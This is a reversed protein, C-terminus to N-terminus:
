VRRSGFRVGCRKASPALAACATSSRAHRRFTSASRLAILWAIRLSGLSEQREISNRIKLEMDELMRGMNAV